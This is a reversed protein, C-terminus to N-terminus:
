ISCFNSCTDNLPPNTVSNREERQIEAVVCPIGLLHASCGHAHVRAFKLLQFSIVLPGLDELVNRLIFSRMILPPALDVSVSCLIFSKMILQPGLDM